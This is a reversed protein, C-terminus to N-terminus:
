RSSSMAAKSAQDGYRSIDKLRRRTTRPGFLAIVSVAVAMASAIFLFVGTTGFNRLEFAIM